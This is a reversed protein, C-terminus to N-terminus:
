LEMEEEDDVTIPPPMAPISFDEWSDREEEEEDEEDEEDKEEDVNEEVDLRKEPGMMSLWQTYGKGVGSAGVGDGRMMHVLPSDDDDDDDDDDDNNCAWSEDAHHTPSSPQYQTLVKSPSPFSSPIFLPPPQTPSSSTVAAPPGQERRAKRRRKPTRSAPSQKRTLSKSPKEPTSKVLVPPLDQTQTHDDITTAQSINSRNLSHNPSSHQAQHPGQPKARPPRPTDQYSFRADHAVQMSSAPPGPPRFQSYTAYESHLQQEAAASHLHSLQSEEEDEDEEEAEILRKEEEQKSGPHLTESSAITAVPANNTPRSTKPLPSPSHQRRNSKSTISPTLPLEEDEEDSGDSLLVMPSSPYTDQLERRSEPPMTHSGKNSPSQQLTATSKATNNGESGASQTQNSITSPSPFTTLNVEDRFERRIDLHPSPYQSTPAGGAISIEKRGEPSKNRTQRIECSSRIKFVPGSLEESSGRAAPTKKMEENACAEDISHLVAQTETGVTLGAVFKRAKSPSHQMQAGNVGIDREQDSEVIEEDDDESDQITSAFRRLPPRAPIVEKDSVQFTVQKRKSPTEACNLASTSRKELPTRGSKQPTNQTSLLSEAPSQSSPIERIRRKEPTSLLSFRSKASRTTSENRDNMRNVPTPTPLPSKDIRRSPRTRKFAPAEIFQTPQYEDESDEDEFRALPLSDDEGLQATNQVQDNNRSSAGLKTERQGFKDQKRKSAEVSRTSKSPTSSKTSKDDAPKFLGKEVLRQTLANNFLEDNSTETVGHEEDEDTNDDSLAHFSLGPVMQTLTQQNKGGKKTSKGSWSKRSGKRAPKYKPEPTDLAPRRGDLIQTMTSQRTQRQKSEEKMESESPSTSGDDGHAAESTDEPGTPTAIRTYNRTRGRKKTRRITEEDEEIADSIRKKGKATVSDGNVAAGSQNRKQTNVHSNSELDEEIEINDEDEDSDRVTDTRRLKGTVLTTQRKESVDYNSPRRVIKRRHPFHQQKSVKKSEYVKRNVKSNNSQTKRPM